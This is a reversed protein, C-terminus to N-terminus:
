KASPLSCVLAEVEEVVARWEEIVVQHLNLM